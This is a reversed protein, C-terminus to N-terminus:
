AREREITWVKKSYDTGQKWKWLNQDDLNTGYISPLDANNAVTPAFVETSELVAYQKGVAPDGRPYVTTASGNIKFTGECYWRDRNSVLNPHVVPSYIGGEWIINGKVFLRSFRHDTEALDPRLQNDSITINALGGGIKLESTKIM